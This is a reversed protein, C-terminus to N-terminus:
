KAAPATLPQVRLPHPVNAKRSTARGRDNFQIIFCDVPGSWKEIDVTDVPAANQGLPYYIWVDNEIKTQEQDNLFSSRVHATPLGFLSRVVAKDATEPLFGSLKDFDDLSAQGATVRHTLELYGVKRSERSSYGVYLLAGAFLVQVVLVVKLMVQNMTESLGSGSVRFEFRINIGESEFCGEGM